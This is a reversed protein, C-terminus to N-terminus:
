ALLKQIDGFPIPECFYHGQFSDCGLEALLELQAADEVGVAVVQRQFVSAMAISARVVEKNSSLENVFARDIKINKFPMSHLEALCMNGRGFGDITVEVGLDTLYNLIERSKGVNYFLTKDFIEVELWKSSLEATRLSTEVLNILGKKGFERRSLNISFRLPDGGMDKLTKADSCCRDMVWEGLEFITSTNEATEIFRAASLLGQEPHQWRVFAEIGIIDHGKAESGNQIKYRPQYHLVLEDNKIACKLDERRRCEFKVENHMNESFVNYTDKGQAKSKYLSIDAKEKLQDADRGDKPSLSIGISATVHAVLDGELTMPSSIENNIKKAVVDVDQENKLRLLLAFEDGSLRAVCDEDRVCKNLVNAVCKLLEDGRDHGLSDNVGKFGDLDIYVIATIEDTRDTDKLMQRLRLDFMLKNDLGTVNDSFALKEHKQASEKLETIDESVIVVHTLETGNMVPTISVWSWYTEGNKKKQRIEGSYAHKLIQVSFLRYQLSSDKNDPIDLFYPKKNKAEEVTYGTVRELSSNVYEIKGNADSIIVINRTQEIASSLTRLLRKEKWYIGRSLERKISPVLRALNNKDIYDCAGLGMLKVISEPDMSSAVVFVPAQIQLSTIIELAQQSDLGATKHHLIIISWDCNRQRLESEIEDKGCAIKLQNISVGADYLHQHLFQVNECSDDIFLINIESEIVSNAPM